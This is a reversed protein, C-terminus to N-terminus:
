AIWRSERYCWVHACRPDQCGRSLPRAAAGTAWRGPHARNGTRFKWGPHFGMHVYLDVIFEDGLLIGGSFAVPVELGHFAYAGESDDHVARVGFLSAGEAIDGGNMKSLSGVLLEKLRLLGGEVEYTCVYGRWWATSMGVPQLGHEAPDFMPGGNVGVIDFARRGVEVRDPIQATM